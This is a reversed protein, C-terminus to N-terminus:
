GARVWWHVVTGSHVPLNKQESNFDEGVDTTQRVSDMLCNCRSKWPRLILTLPFFASRIVWRDTHLPAGDV